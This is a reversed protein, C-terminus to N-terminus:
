GLSCRMFFRFVHIIVPVRPMRPTPAPAAIADSGNEAGAEPTSRVVTESTLVGDGAVM